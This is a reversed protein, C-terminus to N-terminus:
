ACGQGRAEVGQWGGKIHTSVVRKDKIVSEDGDEGVGGEGEETTPLGLDVVLNVDEEEDVEEAEEEEDVVKAKGEGERSSSRADVGRRKLGLQEVPLTVEEENQGGERREAMGREREKDRGNGTGSSAPAPPPVAAVPPAPAPAPPISSMGQSKAASELEAIWPGVEDPGFIEILIERARAYEEPRLSLFKVVKAFDPDVPGEKSVGEEGAQNRRARFVGPLSVEAAQTDMPPKPKGFGRATKRSSEASSPPATGRPAEGGGGGQRMGEREEEGQGQGEEAAAQPERAPPPSSGPPRPNRPRLRAEAKGKRQRKRGNADSSDAAIGGEIKAKNVDNEGSRDRAAQQERREEAVGEKAM